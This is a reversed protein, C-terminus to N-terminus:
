DEVLPWENCWRGFTDPDFDSVLAQALYVWPSSVDRRRHIEYMGNEVRIRVLARGVPTPFWYGATPYFRFRDTLFSLLTSEAIDLTATAM